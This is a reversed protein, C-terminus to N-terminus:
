LFTCIDSKKLKRNISKNVPVFLCADKGDMFSLVVKKHTVVYRIFDYKWLEYVVAPILHKMSKKSVKSNPNQFNTPLVIRHLHILSPFFGFVCVLMYLNNEQM